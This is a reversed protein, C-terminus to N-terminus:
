IALFAPAVQSDARDAIPPPLRLRLIAISFGTVIARGAQRFRLCARIM